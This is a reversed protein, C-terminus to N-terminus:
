AQQAQRQAEQQRRTAAEAAATKLVQRALADLQACGGMALELAERLQSSSWPGRSVLQTVESCAPMLALTLGAEERAAEDTTPDLLLAGEARSVSCATVLDFMEIGADALALAAATAAVALEAGGAELVLVYVDATAKPFSALNTAAELATALLASLEREEPTQGFVGRQRTAFTALKVDVSIRGQESYGVKRESQRPGYVGVMVKTNNFEAYASGSAQSIVGTNLFVNRFEEYARGDRRHGDTLLPQQELGAM